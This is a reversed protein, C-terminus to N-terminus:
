RRRRASPRRWSARRSACGIRTERDVRCGGDRFVDRADDAEVWVGTRELVELTALHIDHLDGDSLPPM